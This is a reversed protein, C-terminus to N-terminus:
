SFDCFSVSRIEKLKRVVPSLTCVNKTLFSKEHLISGNLEFPSSHVEKKHLQLDKSKLYPLDM